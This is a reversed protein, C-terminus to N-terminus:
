CMGSELQLRKLPEEPFRFLDQSELSVPWWDRAQSM